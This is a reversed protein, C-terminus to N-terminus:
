IGQILFVDVNIKQKFNLCPQICEAQLEICANRGGHANRLNCVGVMVIPLGHATHTLMTIGNNLQFAFNALYEIYNEVWILLRAIKTIMKLGFV